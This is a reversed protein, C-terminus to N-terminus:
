GVSIGGPNFSLSRHINEAANADDEILKGIDMQELENLLYDKLEEQKTQGESILSEGDM